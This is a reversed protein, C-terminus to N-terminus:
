AVGGGARPPGPRTAALRASGEAGPQGAPGAFSHHARKGVTEEALVAFALASLIAVGATLLSATSLGGHDIVLGLVIPGVLGGFDGFTRYVGIGSGRLRAPVVDACYAAPVSGSLGNALGVVAYALFFVLPWHAFSFLVYGVGTALLSSIIPTKRSRDSLRGVIGVTGMNVMALVGLTVGFTTTSLHIWTYAILALLTQQGGFRMFFVTFGILCSAVYSRDKFLGFVGFLGRVGGDVEPKRHAERHVVQAAPLRLTTWGAMLLAVAGALVYSARPGFVGATVGGLAPGLSGGALQFAQLTAMAQGRSAGDSLDALLSQGVTIAFGGAMGLLLRMVILMPLNQALSTAALVVGVSAVAVLVVTRRNVRDALLGAPINVLIRAVSFSSVLVGLQAATAGFQHAYVPLVPVVLGWSAQTLAVLGCILYLSERATAAHGRRM